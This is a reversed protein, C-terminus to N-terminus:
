PRRHCWSRLAQALELDSVTGEALGVMLAAAESVPAQVQFGLGALLYAAAAWATRKNGDVFPHNRIIGEVLGAVLVFVDAQGYSALFSPRVLASELGPHNRIGQFRSGTAALVQAHITLIETQSLRIHGKM